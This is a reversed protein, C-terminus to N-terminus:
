YFGRIFEKIEDKAKTFLHYEAVRKCYDEVNAKTVMIDKGNPILEIEEGDPGAVTFLMDLANFNLSKKEDILYTLSKYINEDYLELDDVRIENTKGVIRKLIIPNLKFNMPIKEFLAKAM